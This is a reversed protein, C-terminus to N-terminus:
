EDDMDVDGEEHYADLEADLDEATVNAKQPGGGRGGRGRGRGRGRRSNGGRSQNFQQRRRQGLGQFGGGGGGVNSSGSVLEIIMERGDLPVGNYQKMARQADDRRQFIVEATGLSRGSADYHVTAKKLDGFESFLEQIDSDSVGFDLNSIHLKCGTSIGGGRNRGGRFGSDGDFLDHQWRDPLQKPRSYPTPRNKTVGRGRGSRLPGGRGRGRGGRGRRGGRVTKKNQKIIDDLSM